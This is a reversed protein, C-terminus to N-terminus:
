AAQPGTVQRLRGTRVDYIFGAVSLGALVPSTALARVDERIVQESEPITLFEMDSLDLGAKAGITMRLGDDDYAAMGCDTHGVVAAYRTGLIHHSVALSRIADATVRAGANRIVHVDGMGLGFAAWADIRADMCTLLALQRRPPPRLDTGEFTAAYSENAALLQDFM